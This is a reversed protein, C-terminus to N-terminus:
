LFRLPVVQDVQARCVVCRPTHDEDNVGGAISHAVHYEICQICTAQHLCPLVLANAPADLCISCMPLRVDSLNGSNDAGRLLVKTHEVYTHMYISEM